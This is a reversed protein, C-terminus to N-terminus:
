NHRLIRSIFNPFYFLSIGGAHEELLIDAIKYALEDKLQVFELDPLPCIVQPVEDNLDAYFRLKLVQKPNIFELKIFSENDNVHNLEWKEKYGLPIDEIYAPILVSKQCIIYIPPEKVSVNGANRIDLMILCPNSLTKNKYNVKLDETKSEMTLIPIIELKYTLKKKKVSNKAIKWSVISSIIVGVITAIIGGIGIYDM